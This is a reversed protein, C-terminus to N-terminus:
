RALSLLAPWASLAAYMLPGGGKHDREIIKHVLTEPARFNQAVFDFNGSLAYPAFVALCGVGIAALHFLAERWGFCVLLCVTLPPILVVMTYKMSISLAVFLASVSLGLYRKKPFMFPGCVSMACFFSAVSEKSGVRPLMGLFEPYLIWMLTLVVAVLPGHRHTGRSEAFWRTATRLTLLYLLWAFVIGLLRTPLLEPGFLWVLPAYLYALLPGQAFPFDVFPTLGKAAASAAAMVFGDYDTISCGVGLVAMEILLLAQLPRVFRDLTKM